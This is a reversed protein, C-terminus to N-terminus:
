PICEMLTSEVNDNEDFQISLIYWNYDTLINYDWWILGVYIKGANYWYTDESSYQKIPEGLLEVVKEKPLGVLRQKDNIEKMKVYLNDPNENKINSVIIWGFFFIIIIILTKLIKNKILRISVGWGLIIGLSIIYTIYIFSVFWELSIEVGCITIM